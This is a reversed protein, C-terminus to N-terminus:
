FNCCWSWKGCSEYFAAAERNFAWVGLDMNHCGLSLALERCEEFLLRGVGRRRCSQEVCIDDLYLKDFDRSTSHNRYRILRCFAYGIVRKQGDEAIFVFRGPDNLKESFEGDSYFRPEEKFIDPRGGFHIDAIQKQLPRIKEHDALVAPRVTIKGDEDPLERRLFGVTFPLHPFVATGASVFGNQRYWSKLVANEEIIGVTVAHGGM